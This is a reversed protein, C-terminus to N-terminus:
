DLKSILENKRIENIVRVGVCMDINVYLHTIFCCVTTISVATKKMQGMVVIMILIVYGSGLFVDDIIM